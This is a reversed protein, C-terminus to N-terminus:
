DNLAGESVGYAAEMLRKMFNNALALEKEHVNEAPPDYPLFCNPHFGLEVGYVKERRPWVLYVVLPSDPLPQMTPLMHNRELHHVVYTAGVQLEEYVKGRAYADKPAKNTVCTVMQGPEFM